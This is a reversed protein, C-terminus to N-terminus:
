RRKVENREVHSYFQALYDGPDEASVLWHGVLTSICSREFILSISGFLELINKEEPM